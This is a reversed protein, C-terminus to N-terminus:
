SKGTRPEIPLQRALGTMEEFAAAASLLAAEGRPKGVM